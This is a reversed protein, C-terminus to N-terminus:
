KPFLVQKYLLGSISTKFERLTYFMHIVETKNAPFRNFRPKALINAIHELTCTLRQHTNIPSGLRTTPSHRHCKRKNQQTLQTETMDERTHCRLQSYSFMCYPICVNLEYMAMDQQEAPSHILICVSCIQARHKSTVKANRVTSVSTEESFCSILLM